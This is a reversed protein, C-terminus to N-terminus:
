MADQPRSGMGSRQWRRLGVHWTGIFAYRFTTSSFLCQETKGVHTGLPENCHKCILPCIRLTGATMSTREWWTVTHCTHADYYGPMTELVRRVVQSMNDRPRQGAHDQPLTREVDPHKLADEIAIYAQLVSRGLDEERVNVATLWRLADLHKRQINNLTFAAALREIDNM